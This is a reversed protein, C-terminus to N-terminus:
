ILVAPKPPHPEPPIDRGSFPLEVNVTQEQMTVVIPVPTPVCLIAIASACTAMCAARAAKDDGGCDMAHDPSPMEMAATAASMKLAAETMVFGHAVASIGFLMAILLSVFHRRPARFAM